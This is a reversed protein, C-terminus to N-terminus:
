SNSFNTNYNPTTSKKIGIYNFTSSNIKKCWLIINITRVVEIKYELAVPNMM